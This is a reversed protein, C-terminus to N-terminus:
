WLAKGALVELGVPEGELFVACAGNGVSAWTGDPERVIAAGSGIAVLACDAPALAITRRLGATLEGEFGPVVALGRVLGLGVTFAGGRPDVMPDSITTAGAGWGAIAAGDRWAAVLADLVLSDKLVSRLHLPSGGTVYCCRAGRVVAALAADEADSRSLVMCPRVSAGLAAFHLEAAAISLEPREYASGTPLVVVEDGATVLDAAATATQTWDIGGDLVLRGPPEDTATVV